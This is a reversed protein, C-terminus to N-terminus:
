ASDKKKQVSQKYIQNSLVAAGAALLGQLASEVSPGLLLMAGVVGLASLILPITWNPIIDTSKILMGALYLVPILILAQDRVFDVLDM